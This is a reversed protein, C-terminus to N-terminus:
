VTPGLLIRPDFHDFLPRYSAATVHHAEDVVIYDYFAPGVQDWLRRHTMMQIACFLHEMRDAQHRGTLLDGFNADKLV